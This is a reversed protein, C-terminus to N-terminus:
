YLVSAKSHAEQALFAKSFLTPTHSMMGCRLNGLALAPSLSAM